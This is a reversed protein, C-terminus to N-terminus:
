NCCRNANIAAKAELEVGRARVEGAPVQNLANTPDAMLTDSKTLRYVAGTIVVPM